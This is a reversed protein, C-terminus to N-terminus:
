QKMGEILTLLKDHEHWALKESARAVDREMMFRIATDMALQLRESPTGLIPTMDISNFAKLEADSLEPLMM